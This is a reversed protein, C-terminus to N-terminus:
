MRRKGKEGKERKTKSKGKNVRGKKMNKRAFSM